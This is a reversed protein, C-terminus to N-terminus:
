NHNLLDRQIQLFQIFEEKEYCTFEHTVYDPKILDLVEIPSEDRFPLHQDVNSIFERVVKVKEEYDQSSKFEDYLRDQNQQRYSGSLSKHLHVGYFLDATDQFEILIRELYDLGEAETSLKPNTNMLHGTDVLFGVNEYDVQHIFELAEKKDLFTLGSWWLNEFLLKFEVDMGAMVKNVVEVIESLITSDSYTFDERFVDESKVSSAHFVVYDVDLESALELEERYDAIVKDLDLKNYETSTLPLWNLYYSLHMGKILDNPIEDKAQNRDLGASLLEIGAFGQEQCFDVVQQWDNEFWELTYVSFNFLERM